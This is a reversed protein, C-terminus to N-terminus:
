KESFFIETKFIYKTIYRDISSDIYKKGKECNVVDGIADLTANEYGGFAFKYVRKCIEILINNTKEVIDDRTCLVLGDATNIYLTKNRLKSTHLLPRKNVPFFVSQVLANYFDRTEPSDNAIIVVAQNDLLEHAKNISNNILFQSHKFDLNNLITTNNSHEEKIKLLNEHYIKKQKCTNQHRTKNDVRNFLKNCFRCENREEQLIYIKLQIELARTECSKMSCNKEHRTLNLVEKQCYICCNLTGTCCTLNGTLSNLSNLNGTLSNLNGTVEKCQFKRSLHRQLRWNVPFVINCRPCAFTM